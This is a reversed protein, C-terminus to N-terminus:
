KLSKFNEFTIFNSLRALIFTHGYLQFNGCVKQKWNILSLFFINMLIKASLVGDDHDDFPKRELKWPIYRHPWEHVQKM